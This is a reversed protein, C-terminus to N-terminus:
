SKKFWPVFASTSEQYHRYDEARSRLCQEETIKVGTVNVLFHLMLLPAFLTIWGWPSASAYLWYSVWMIWEFFYNPHRSSGWLGVRCTKGQNSPNAKFAKLQADALSEGLFGVAFVLVAVIELPSLAPAENRCSILYPLSLFSALLAQFLFFGLFKIDIHAGWARRLAVYRGEEPNGLTRRAIHWSLRLGTFTVMAAILWKRLPLGTAFYAYLCAMLALNLGWGIDIVGANKLRLSWIWAALAVLCGLVLALGYLATVNM